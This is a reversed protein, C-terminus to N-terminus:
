CLRAVLSEPTLRLRWPRPLAASTPGLAAALLPAGPPGRIWVQAKHSEHMKGTKIEVPGVAVERGTRLVSGGDTSQGAAQQVWGAGGGIPRRQDPDDLTLRASCAAHGPSPWAPHLKGGARCGCHLM